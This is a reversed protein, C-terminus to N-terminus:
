INENRITEIINQKKIKNLSYKMISIILLVVIIITLIIAIYPLEFSISYKYYLNDYTFLYFMIYSAFCGLPVGIIISKLCYLISELKIMRNFENDTMGVSRLMAFERKRLEMNTTITNFINTIGILAIVTLFGYLFISLLLIIARYKEVRDNLNIIEYRYNESLLNKIDNELKKPNSSNIYLVNISNNYEYYKEQSVIKDFLEDSVIIIPGSSRIQSYSFPVIDPIDIIEINDYDTIEDESKISCIDHNDYVSIVNGKHYDFSHYVTKKVNNNETVYSSELDLLIAKDKADEYKLGLKKLYKQYAKEGIAEINVTQFILDSDQCRESGLFNDFSTNRKIYEDSFKPQKLHILYSRKEIYELVTDMQLIEKNKEEEDGIEVDKKSEIDFSFVINYDSQLEMKIIRSVLNVFYSLAIFGTVCITIAIITTRYKSKNRKINKYSIEGGIGLIKNIYKPCKLKKAKLKIDNTNRIAEIPSIKCSKRASSISSLFITIISIVISILIAPLSIVFVLEMYYFNNILLNCIGLLILSALLGCGIGLPIGILSLILAEYYVNKKIQKKTAGISKLMGYQKTKETISISFSNKICFISTVIIIVCAVLAIIGLGEITSNGIIEKELNILTENSSYGYKMKKYLKDSAETCKEYEELTRAEFCTKVYIYDDKSVGLLTATVEDVNNLGKKTYRTFVDVKNNLNNEDILTIFTYGPASYMEINYNPRDIIGVITYEKKDTYILKEQGEYYSIEQNLIEKTQDYTRYGIDLSLKDGISYEVYGNSKLHTPILIEKDNEPLRGDVLKIGLENLSENTLGLVFIYPKFINKSEKLNAYGINQTIYINSVERNEKFYKLDEIPVDNFKYHFNGNILKEYNILSSKVSFFMNAVATILAVSLIIGVITVITRKKNLKLDRITLKNLLKM